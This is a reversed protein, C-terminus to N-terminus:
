ESVGGEENFYMETSFSSKKMGESSTVKIKAKKLEIPGNELKIEVIYGSYDITVPTETISYKGDRVKAVFEEGVQVATLKENNYKTHKASQAFFSVFSILVISLIVIAALIEILSFGQEKALEKSKNKRM